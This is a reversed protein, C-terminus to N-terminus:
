NAPKGSAASWRYRAESVADVHPAAVGCATEARTCQPGSEVCGHVMEVVARALAGVWARRDCVAVPNRALGVAQFLGDGRRRCGYRCYRGAPGVVIALNSIAVQAAVQEM